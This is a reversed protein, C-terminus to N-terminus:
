AASTIDFGIDDEEGNVLGYKYTVWKNVFAWFQECASRDLVGKSADLDM